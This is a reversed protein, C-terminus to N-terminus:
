KLILNGEEDEKPITLHRCKCNCNDKAGGVPDGPYRMAVGSVNFTDDFEIRKGNLVRHWDREFTSSNHKWQKLMVYPYAESATSYAKNSIMLTETRAILKARARPRIRGEGVMEGLAYDYIRKVAKQWGEKKQITETFARQIRSRTTDTIDTVHKAGETMFYELFSRRWVPSYYQIGLLEAKSFRNVYNYNATAAKMGIREYFKRIADAIPQSTLYAQYLTNSMEVSKTSRLLEIIPNIQERLAKNFVRYGYREWLDSLRDLEENIDNIEKQTM